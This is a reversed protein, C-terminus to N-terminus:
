VPPPDPFASQVFRARRHIAQHPRTVLDVGRDFKRAERRGDLVDDIDGGV